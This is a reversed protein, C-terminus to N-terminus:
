CWWKHRCYGGTLAGDALNHHHDTDVHVDVDGDSSDDTIAPPPETTTTTPATTTTPTPTSLPVMFQVSSATSQKIRTGPAPNQSVITAYPNSGAAMSVTVGRQSLDSVAASLTWGQYNPMPITDAYYDQGAVYYSPTSSGASAPQHKGGAVAVVLLLM